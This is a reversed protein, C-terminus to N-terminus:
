EAERARVPAEEAVTIEGGRAGFDAVTGVEELAEGEIADVM